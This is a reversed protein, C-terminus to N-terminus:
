SVLGSLRPLVGGAHWKFTDQEFLELEEPSLEVGTVAKEFLTHFEERCQQSEPGKAWDNCIKTSDM